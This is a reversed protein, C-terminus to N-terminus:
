STRYNADGFIVGLYVWVSCVFAPYPIIRVALLFTCNEYGINHVDSNKVKEWVYEPKDLPCNITIGFSNPSLVSLIRNEIDKLLNNANERPYVYLSSDSAGARYSSHFTELFPFVEYIRDTMDHGAWKFGRNDNAIKADQFQKRIFDELEVQKNYVFAEPTPEYDVPTQISTILNNPFFNTRRNSTGLFPMWAKANNVNFDIVYPDTYKQINIYIDNEDIACGVSKLGITYEKDTVQNKTGRAINFCLFSSTYTQQRISYGIGTSANWLEVDGSLTDRRLVYVSKGEPVGSGILLYTKTNTDKDLWKFYNCLLLAHEEYDGFCLDIFEQCTTWIDPLDKFAQNDEIHPILSVYRVLKSVPDPDNAALLGHPPELPTIFRPLFVSQGSSNETWLQIKRDKLISNKNKIASLWNSGFFLFAPPEFGAYYEGENELPLELVPDLNIKLSLYTPKEPDNFVETDDKAKFPDSRQIRYGQLCLPRNLRFSAEIGSPNQLITLIPLEFSGLFRRELKVKYENVHVTSSSSLLQDYLNFYLISECDLLENVTFETKNLSWFTIELMENWEPFAGDFPITRVKTTQENHSLIVEVFSQVREILGYRIIREEDFEAAKGISRDDGMRMSPMSNNYAFGSNYNQSYNSSNFGQNYGRFGQSNSPQGLFAGKRKNIIDNQIYKKDQEAGVTRIPVNVAKYVLITIKCAGLTSVAVKQVKKKAPLLRRRPAFLFKFCQFFFKGEIMIFERVVSELSTKDKEFGLRVRNQKIRFSEMLEVMRKVTPANQMAKIKLQQIYFYKIKQNSPENYKITEVIRRLLPSKIIDKELMPVCLDVLSNYNYREKYILYRYSTFRYHPFLSDHKLLEQIKNDRKQLLFHLLDKNRPDNVDIYSQLDEPIELTQRPILSLDEFRIPPMKESHGVWGAKLTLNGTVKREIGDSFRTQILQSGIFDLDKYQNGSSTLAKVNLGPPTFELAGLTKTWRLGTCIEIRVKLPRTFLHLEFREGFFVEFNPWSIFRKTTRAVYVGNVIIRLFVRTAQILARRSKEAAIVADTPSEAQLYFDYEPTGDRTVITKVALKLSTNSFGQKLRVAKLDQWRNYLNEAMEQLAIKEKDMRDKTEFISQKLVSVEELVLKNQQKELTSASFNTKQLFYEKEQLETTLATLRNELHDLLCLSVRKEYSYFLNKVKAALYDEETFMFHDRFFVQGMFLDLRYYKTKTANNRHSYMASTYKLDTSPNHELSIDVPKSLFHTTIDSDLRLEWNTRNFYELEKARLLRQELKQMNYTIEQAGKTYIGDVKQDKSIYNEAQGIINQEDRVIAPKNLNTLGRGLLGSVELPKLYQLELSYMDVPPKLIPAFLDVLYPFKPPQRILEEEEKANEEIPPDGPNEQLM